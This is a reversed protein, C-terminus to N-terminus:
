DQFCKERCYRSDHSERCKDYMAESRVDACYEHSNGADRCRDYAGQGVSSLHADNVGQVTKDVVDGATKQAWKRIDYLSQADDASCGVLTVVVSALVMVYLLGRKNM